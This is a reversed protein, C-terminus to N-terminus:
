LGVRTIKALLVDDRCFYAQIREVSRLPFNKMRTLVGTLHRSLEMPLFTALVNDRLLSSSESKSPNVKAVTKLRGQDGLAGAGARAM